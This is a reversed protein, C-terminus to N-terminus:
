DRKAEGGQGIECSLKLWALLTEVSIWWQEVTAQDAEHLNNSDDRFTLSPRHAAKNRCRFLHDLNRYEDPKVAKLSQGFAREAIVGILDMVSANVRGKDELYEYMTAAASSRGFYSSKVAVECAIALEIVARRLNGSAIAAQADSLIEEQIDTEVDDKLAAELLPEENQTLERSSLRSRSLGPIPYLYWCSPGTLHRGREDTWEPDELEYDRLERLLPNRLRYKFFRIFHNVATLGAERYEDTRGSLYAGQVLYDTKDDADV